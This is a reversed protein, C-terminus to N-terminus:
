YIYCNFQYYLYLYINLDDNGCINGCIIAVLYLEEINNVVSIFMIIFFFFCNLSLEISVYYSLLLLKIERYKDIFTASLKEFLHKNDVRFLFECVCVYKCTRKVINGINVDFVSYYTRRGLDQLYFKVCKNM